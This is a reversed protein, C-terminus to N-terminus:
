FLDPSYPGISHLQYWVQGYGLDRLLATFTRTRGPESHMRLVFPLQVQSKILPVRLEFRLPHVM